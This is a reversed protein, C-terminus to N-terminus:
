TSILKSVWQLEVEIISCILNRIENQLAGLGHVTGTLKKSKLKGVHLFWVCEFKPFLLPYGMASIVAEVSYQSMHSAVIDDQFYAYQKEDETPMQFFLELISNVYCWTWLM